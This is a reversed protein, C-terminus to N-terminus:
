TKNRISSDSPVGLANLALINNYARAFRQIASVDYFLATLPPFEVVRSTNERKRFLTRQLALEKRLAYRQVFDLNEGHLVRDISM